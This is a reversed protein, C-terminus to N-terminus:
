QTKQIAKRLEIKCCKNTYRYGDLGIIEKTNECFSEFTGMFGNLTGKSLINKRHVYVAWYMKRDQENMLKSKKM